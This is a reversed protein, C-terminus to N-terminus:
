RILTDLSDDEFYITCILQKCDIGTNFDVDIKKLFEDFDESSYGEKLYHCNKDFNIWCDFRLVCDISKVPPKGVLKKLLEEKVNM